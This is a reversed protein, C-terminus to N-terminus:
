STATEETPDKAEFFEPLYQVLRNYWHVMKKINSTYVKTQDYEPIIRRLLQHLKEPTDCLAAPLPGSFEAYLGWLLT